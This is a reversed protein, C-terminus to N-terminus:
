IRLSACYGDRTANEINSPQRRDGVYLVTEALDQLDDFEDPYNRLGTALIVTDACVERRVGEQDTFIVSHETIQECRSSLSVQVNTVTQLDDFSRLDPKYEHTLFFETFVKDEWFGKSFKMLQDAAEILHVQKGMTQLQITLECGVDGGGVIVVNQGIEETRSFVDASHIVHSLDAGQIPPMFKEAGSAVVIADPNLEAISARTATFGTLVQINGRKQVQRILYDRYKRVGTKFSLFDAFELRGGLVSSKELLTVFNGQDAIEIAANMGAPGAGIVVVKKRTKSRIVPQLPKRYIRRANVSCCSLSGSSDLPECFDMCHLCRICPRIDETRGIRAKEAWDPDAIFSRAMTVFDAVGDRIVHEAYEPDHIGGVTEVPINVHAKVYQATWTNVGQQMYQSPFTFAETYSDHIKGASLHVIDITESMIQAIRAVDEISIGGKEIESGSIRMSILMDNGVRQRIRDVVMKPFRARNDVCGGYEDTRQNEIPSFFQGLLWNHGAHVNIIDFGARKGIYAAEAFYDAIQNMEEESLPDVGLHGTTVVAAGGRAVNGYYDAAEESFVARGTGDVFFM